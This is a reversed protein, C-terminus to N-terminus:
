GSVSGFRTTSGPTSVFCDSCRTYTLRQLSFDDLKYGPEGRMEAYEVYVRGEQGVAWYSGGLNRDWSVQKYIAWNTPGFAYQVSQWLGNSSTRVSSDPFFQGYFGNTPGIVRTGLLDAFDSADVLMPATIALSSDVSGHTRDVAEIQIVNTGKPINTLDVNLSRWASSAYADNIRRKGLNTVTGGSDRGFLVDLSNLWPGTTKALNGAVAVLLRQDSGIQSPLVYWASQLKAQGKYNSSTWVTDPSRATRNGFDLEPFDSSPEVTFGVNSILKTSGVPTLPTATSLAWVKLGSELGGGQGGAIQQVNHLETTWSKAQAARYTSLGVDGALVTVNVLLVLATLVAIGGSISNSVAKKGLWGYVAAGALVIGAISLWLVVSSLDLSGILGSNLDPFFPMWEPWWYSTGFGFAAIASIAVAAGISFSVQKWREAVRDILIPLQSVFLACFLSAIGIFGGFHHIWKSPTIVLLPLAICITLGLARLSDNQRLSGVTGSSLVLLVAFCILCLFLPLIAMIRPVADSFIQSYRYPEDRWSLADGPSGYEGTLYRSYLGAGIGNSAFFLALPASVAAATIVGMKIRESIPGLARLWSIMRPLFVLLPALAVIGAPHAGFSLSACLIALSYLFFSGRRSAAQSLLFTLLFFMSSLNEPRLGYGFAMWWTLFLASAVVYTWVRWVANKTPLENRVSFAVLIWTVTGVILSPIRMWTIDWSGTFGAWWSYFRWPWDFPSFSNNFSQLYRGIYGSSELNHSMPWFYGDDRLPPSLLYWYFVVAITSALILIFAVSEPRTRHERKGVSSFSIREALLLWLLSVLGFGLALGGVIAKGLTAEVHGYDAVGIEVHPRDVDALVESSLSTVSPMAGHAKIRLDGSSLTAGESDMHFQFECDSGSSNLKFLRADNAVFVLDDGSKSITLAFQKGQPSSEGMTRLLAEHNSLTRAAQCTGTVSIYRPIPNVLFLNTDSAAAGAQPWTVTPTSASVPLFPMALGFVIALTAIGAGFIRSKFVSGLYSM